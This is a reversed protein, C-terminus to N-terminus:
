KLQKQHHRAHVEQFRVWDSLKVTGFTKSTVMADVAAGTAKAQREFAALAAELRARGEAPTAPGTVPDMPRNTRAKPFTGKRCVRNFLLGRAVPRLLGPLSPFAAEQGAFVKVSEDYGRAVHETVQAPTWKRPARPTLWTSGLQDVAALFAEVAARNSKLADEIAPM